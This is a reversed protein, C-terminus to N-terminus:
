SQGKVFVSVYCYMPSGFGNYAGTADHMVYISLKQTIRVSHHVISLIDSGTELSLMLESLTRGCNSYM